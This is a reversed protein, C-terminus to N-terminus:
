YMYTHELETICLKCIFDESGTLPFGIGRVARVRFLVFLVVLERSSVSGTVRSYWVQRQLARAWIMHIM